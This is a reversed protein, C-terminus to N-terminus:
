RPTPSGPSALVDGARPPLGDEQARSTVTLEGQLIAPGDAVQCRPAEQDRYGGAAELEDGEYATITGARRRAPVAWCAPFRVAFGAPWLVAIRADGSELWVCGGDLESDGALRGAILAQMIAGAGGPRVLPQGHTPLAVLPAASIPTPDPGAAESLVERPEAPDTTLREPPATSSCAALVMLLAALLPRAPAM